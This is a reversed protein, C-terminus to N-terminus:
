DEDRRESVSYLSDRYTVLGYSITDWINKTAKYPMDNHSRDRLRDANKDAYKTIVDDIEILESASFISMDPTTLPIIRQQVYGFYPVDMGKISQEWEMQPLILDMIKPVPWRPLKAYEVGTISNMNKEFFNFDSFYLLKNLVTKGVNPKQACKNLIYLLTQKFKYFPDEEKPKISIQQIEKEERLLDDLSIEFLETIKILESHKLEREGQEIQSFTVRSVNLAKAFDDQSLNAKQRLKKIKEWIKKQDM